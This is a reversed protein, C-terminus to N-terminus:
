EAPLDTVNETKSASMEFNDNFRHDTHRILIAL